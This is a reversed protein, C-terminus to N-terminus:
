PVAYQWDRVDHPTTFRLYYGFPDVVRFDELGWPQMARPELISVRRSIREYYQDFDQVQFVLEVGIGRPASDPFSKFYTQDYISENGGWFCLTNQDLALVLYGKKGEPIREWCIQFELKNYFEKAIEFDPIHLEVLTGLTSM